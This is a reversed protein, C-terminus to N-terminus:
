QNVTTSSLPKIPTSINDEEDNPNNDNDSESSIDYDEDTDHNSDDDEEVDPYLMSPEDSVIQSIATVHQSINRQGEDTSIHAHQVKSFTQSQVPEFEVLVHIGEKSIDPRITWLYRMEDDNNMRTDCTAPIPQDCGFQQM